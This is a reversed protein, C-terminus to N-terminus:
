RRGCRQEEGEGRRRQHSVPADDVAVDADELWALCPALHSRRQTRPRLRGELVVASRNPLRSRVHGATGSVPDSRRLRPRRTRPRRDIMANYVRRASEYGDDSPDILKGRPTSAFAQVAGADPGGVAQKGVAHQM